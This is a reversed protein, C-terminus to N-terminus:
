HDTTDSQNHAPSDQIQNKFRVDNPLWQFHGNSFTLNHTTGYDPSWGNQLAWEVASRISGPTIEFDHDYPDIHLFYKGSRTGVTIPTERYIINRSLHWLYETDAIHLQRTHKKPWAMDTATYRGAYGPPSTVSDM